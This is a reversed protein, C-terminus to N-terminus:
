SNSRKRKVSDIVEYESPYFMDDCTSLLVGDSSIYEVIVTKVSNDKNDKITVKDGKKYQKFKTDEKNKVKVRKNKPLVDRLDELSSLGKIKNEFM